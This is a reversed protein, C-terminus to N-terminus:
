LLLLYLYLFARDQKKIIEMMIISPIAFKLLRVPTFHQNISLSM